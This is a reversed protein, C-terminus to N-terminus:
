IKKMIDKLEEKEDNTIGNFYIFKETKNSIDKIV